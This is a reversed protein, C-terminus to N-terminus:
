METKLQAIEAELAQIFNPKTALEDLYKSHLTEQATWEKKISKKANGSLATGTSDSDPIPQDFSEMKIKYKREILASPTESASIWKQLDKEKRALSSAQKAKRTSEEAALREHRERLLTSPDDFLYGFEGDDTIKVGLAPMVDDRLTDSSKLLDGKAAGADKSLQRVQKRFDVLANVYPRIIDKPDTASSAQEESDFGYEQNGEIVGFVRLIRTVYVAAKKLLFAKKSNNKELYINSKTVLDTLLIMVTATDVNDCMAKHVKSQIQTINGNLDTDRQNWHEDSSGAALTRQGIVQEVRGFFEKLHKEKAIVEKMTDVRQFNMSSDWAQMLFLMRIRRASHLALMERITVFNKLSKSMKLGDIHLHGTHLFYNVWQPNGFYAESQALENDHHPFKLDCGGAHIDLNSGLVKGAMASCEIHWGPRGLGWPSEWAPEGPKSKKWLAFDNSSRKEGTTALGGEGEALLETNGYAGPVLKAYQHKESKDFAAVDFYVSGESDYAFGNAIIQQCMEIIEPVYESVRTLVDPTKIGLGKMDELYEQEFYQSHLKTVRNLTATDLSAGHRLDLYDCLADKMDGLIPLASHGDTLSPLAAVLKAQLEVAKALKEAALKLEPGAETASRKGVSIADELIQHKGYLACRHEEMAKVLEQKLADDLTSLAEIKKVHEDFLYNKRSRIIIKDDIDTINM